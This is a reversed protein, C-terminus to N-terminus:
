ELGKAMRILKSSIAIDQKLLDAIASSPAGQKM